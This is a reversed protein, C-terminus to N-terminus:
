SPNIETILNKKKLSIYSRQLLVTSLIQYKWLETTRCVQPLFVLIQVHSVSSLVHWWVCSIYIMHIDLALVDDDTM